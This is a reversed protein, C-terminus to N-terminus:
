YISSTLVTKVEKNGANKMKKIETNKTTTIRKLQPPFNTRRSALM